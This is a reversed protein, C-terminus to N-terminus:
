LDSLLPALKELNIPSIKAGSLEALTLKGAPPIPIIESLVPAIATKYEELKDGPLQYTGDGRSTGFRMAAEERVRLVRVMLPRCARQIRLVKVACSVDLPQVMLEALTEYADALQGLSCCSVPHATPSASPPAGGSAQPSVNNAQAVPAVAPASDQPTSENQM